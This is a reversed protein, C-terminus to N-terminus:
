AGKEIKLLEGPDEIEDRRIMRRAAPRPIISTVLAAWEVAVGRIPRETTSELDFIGDDATPHLFKILVRGDPLGCVCLEDHMSADPPDRREDYYVLWGDEAIGRMSDGAVQLAVTTVNTGATAPAFGFNGDGGAYSVDADPGGRAFGVIPVLPSRLHEPADVELYAAVKPVESLQLRRGGNFMATIASPARGIAKALGAKTKGPKGLGLKIWELDDM